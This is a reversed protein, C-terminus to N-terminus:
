SQGAVFKSFNTGAALISGFMQFLDSLDDGDYGLTPADVVTYITASRAVNVTPILEDPVVKRHTIKMLHRDRKKYSHSVEVTLNGDASRYTSSNVGVSIRDLEHDVSSGDTLVLPDTLAM